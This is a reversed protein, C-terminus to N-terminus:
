SRQLAGGARTAGLRAQKQEALRKHSFRRNEFNAKKVLAGYPKASGFLRSVQVQKRTNNEGEWPGLDAAADPPSTYEDLKSLNVAKSMDVLGQIDRFDGVVGLPVLKPTRQGKELLRLQQKQKWNFTPRGGPRGGGGAFRKATTTAAAALSNRALLACSLM